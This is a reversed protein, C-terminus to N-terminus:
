RETKNLKASYYAAVHKKGDRLKLLVAGVGERSANMHAIYQLGLEFHLVPVAM